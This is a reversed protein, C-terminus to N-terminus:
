SKRKPMGWAGKGEQKAKAETAELEKEVTAASRGDPMPVKQGYIRAMGEGVLLSALDEGEATRILAFYRPLASRGRADEWLTIITFPKSLKQKTFEAAQDALLYLDKKYIKWYKAQATTRETLGLDKKEPTDVFYLRFIYEKGGQKVHFSDGDFEEKKLLRCAELTEWTGASLSGCAAGLMLCGLFVRGWARRSLGEM